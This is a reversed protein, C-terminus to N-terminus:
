ASEGAALRELRMRAVEAFADGNFKKGDGLLAMQGSCYRQAADASIGLAAAVFAAHKEYAARVASGPSAAKLAKSVVEVEKRAIRDAAAYALAVLRKPPEAKPTAEDGPDANDNPDPEVEDPLTGAPVMNLPQLFDGLGEEPNMGEALRAENRSMWGTLIGSKYYNSRAASDGRMLATAPFEVVLNEDDGIFDYAIAAEWNVLRPMLADTVFELAQQEINSFTARDLDGIKHPPVGFLRAIESVTFKRTEMFQADDNSIKIEHLKMGFELVAAKGRNSGTQQEQWQQRFLRKQEDSKFQGPYEIWMSPRGDNQFFRMGYEQAALGTSVADRAAAIPGLGTIGDTTLGRLHFVQSRPLVIETQDRRTYRYRWNNEDLMELRIRDPNMPLLDTVEGQRNSIIQAYANGRLELWSQMLRRFTVPNQFENPRKALLRYLWHDTQLTRGGDANRQYLMFPLSSISESILSVCRYVATLRLATESSVTGGTRSPVPSFWFPGYPSRDGGEAKIKLFM